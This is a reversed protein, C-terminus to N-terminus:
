SAAPSGVVPALFRLFWYVLLLLPHRQMHSLEFDDLYLVGRHALSVEGPRPISGGGILGAQSITHHPARFPRRQVLAKGPPLKDAVSYIRTVELAEQPSLPPLIGPLARAILTKGAGPPGAMLLHHNGAAAVEMARKM